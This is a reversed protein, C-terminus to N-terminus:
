AKEILVKEGDMVNKLIKTDETIKGIINIPSAARIEGEKSAPTKGFFICFASGPPWFGLEGIEVIDRADTELSASVPIEFYIEDGWCNAEGTVPLKEYILKATESDNLVAELSINGTRIKIKMM